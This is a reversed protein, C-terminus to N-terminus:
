GAQYMRSEGLLRLGASRPAPEELVCSRRGDLGEVRVRGSKWTVRWTMRAGRTWALSELPSADDAIFQLDGGHGLCVTWKDTAPGSAIAECMTEMLRRANEILSDM